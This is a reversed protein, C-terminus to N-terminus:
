NVLASCQGTANGLVTNPGGVSDGAQNSPVNGSCSLNGGVTNHAVENGDPDATINGTLTVNHTVTDRFMGLWCSQWGAVSFQGGISMNEFDGYAPAGGLAPLSSSCSVGGGGGTVSLNGLVNTHHIVVALANEATLNGGVTHQTSYLGPFPNPDNPCSYYIPECGLNLIAGAQVDLNGGVTLDSSTPPTGFGDVGGKLAVLSAGPLVTLNHQVTVPGSDVTCNGAITLSSYVGAAISGGSCTANGAAAATGCTAVVLVAVAATADAFSFGVSKRMMSSNIM